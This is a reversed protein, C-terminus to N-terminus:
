PRVHRISPGPRLGTAGGHLHSPRVLVCTWVRTGPEGSVWARAGAWVGETDASSPGLPAPAGARAGGEAPWWAVLGGPGEEQSCLM